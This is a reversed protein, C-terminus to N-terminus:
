VNSHGFTFVCENTGGFRWEMDVLENVRLTREIMSESLQVFKGGFREAMFKARRPELGSLNHMFIDDCVVIWVCVSM